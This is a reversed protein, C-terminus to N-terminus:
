RNRRSNRKNNRDRMREAREMEREMMRDIRNQEKDPLMTAIAGIGILNSLLGKRVGMIKYFKDVFSPTSKKIEKRGESLRELIRLTIQEIEEETIDKTILDPNPSVNPKNKKQYKSRAITMKDTLKDTLSDTLKDKDFDVPQYEDQQRKVASKHAKVPNDTDFSKLEDGLAKRERESLIPMGEEDIMVVRVVKDDNDYLVAQLEGNPFEHTEVLTKQLRM